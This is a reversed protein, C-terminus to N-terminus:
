EVLAAAIASHMADHVDVTDARDTRIVAVQLAPTIMHARIIDILARVSAVEVVDVGFGRTVDVLEVPQPTGFLREFEDRSLFTAQPLFEFIAGGANDVVVFLATAGVAKASVLGGIDHLFALDGLLGVTPRGSGISVGVVTSVVGDIGNAGRNAHVTLGVRPAAYWEVDRVPMSSSVVLHAGDALAGVVSRAIAPDTPQGDLAADSDLRSAFASAARRDAGVWSSLWGATRPELGGSALAMCFATPDATVHLSANRAPDLWAGHPDVLVDHAVTALFTGIVKSAWPAGLRLVVEARLSAAMSEDRLIVDAYAVVCDGPTRMGSRPDALLPWGLQQALMAVAAPDGADAGAVIVGRRGRLVASVLAVADSDVARGRGVERHWPENAARGPPLVGAVGVLPERFPLNLQVPGPGGRGNTTEILARAGLSRWAGRNEVSAVGIDAFWRTSVGFLRQQDVTQPAGIGHLEAPRDATCVLMPVRDLDAEAIAPHYEVAATGSTCLLVPPRGTARAIGLAVFAASREDLVVNTRIHTARLLTLALPTSRSGPSVVADTVGGRVWEDVLTACFTAQLDAPADPDRDNSM